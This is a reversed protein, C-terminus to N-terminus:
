NAGEDIWQGVVDAGHDHVWGKLYQEPSKGRTDAGIALLAYAAERMVFADTVNRRVRSPTRDAALRALAVILTAVDAQNM